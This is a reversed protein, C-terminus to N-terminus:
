CRAKDEEESLMRRLYFALATGTYAHTWESNGFADIVERVPILEYNLLEDEDLHQQGTATLDEALFVHLHNKFLAPNPSCVGLLEMRGARFGTEELLERAAAQAPEEGPDIIGGPFEVTIREEAHRWQRVTVFSNNYVPVVMAWDSADMAIFEGELGTGSVETQQLVDLVPTKLLTKKETVTWKLEQDRMM